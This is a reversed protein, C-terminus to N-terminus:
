IWDGGNKHSLQAPQRCKKTVRGTPYHENASAPKMIRLNLDKDASRSNRDVDEDTWTQMVEGKVVPLRHM